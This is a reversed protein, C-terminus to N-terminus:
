ATEGAAGRTCACYEKREGCVSCPVMELTSTPEHDWDIRPMEGKVAGRGEAAARDAALLARVAHTAIDDEPNSAEGFHARYLNDHGTLLEKIAAIQERTLPM